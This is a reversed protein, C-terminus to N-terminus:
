LLLSAQLLHPDYRLAERAKQEAKAPQDALLLIKGAEVRAAGNKPNLEVARSFAAYSFRYDQEKLYAMGLDYSARDSRPAVQLAKRFYIEAARYDEAAMAQEGRAIYDRRLCGSVVMAAVFMFMVRTIKKM